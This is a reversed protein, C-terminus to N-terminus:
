KLAPLDLNLTDIPIRDVHAKKRKLANFFVGGDGVVVMTARKPDYIRAGVSRAQQATVSQVDAVYSQLKDLPLGFAALLALQGSLGSATEVGRGFSGILNAKRAELEAAPVEARGLRDLEQEMLEVV